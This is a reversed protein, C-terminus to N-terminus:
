KTTVVMLEGDLWSKVRQNADKVNGRKENCAKQLAMAEKLRKNISVAEEMKRRLVNQQKTHMRDMNVIQGQKKRDESKLKMVERDKQAKWVRFKENDEKMQRILKVKAQKMVLIDTSIRTLKLETQQKMKLMKAQELQKKKLNNIQEELEKVRKRRQEAIKMSGPNKSYNRLQQTLEDREKGLIDIHSELDGM